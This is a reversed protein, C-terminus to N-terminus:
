KNITEQAKSITGSGNITQSVKPNGLYNVIGNGSITVKLSDKANVFFKSNGNSNLEVKDAVLKQTDIVTNGSVDVTLSNTAGQGEFQNSGAFRLELSDGTFSKLVVHNNGSLDVEKLAPIVIDVTPIGQPRLLYGKKTQVTLTKGSVTSEIYPLLNGNVKVIVSQPQGITINVDYYGSINVTKFTDVTRAQAIIKDTGVIEKKGCGVLLLSLLLFSSWKTLKM